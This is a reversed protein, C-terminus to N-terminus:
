FAYSIKATVKPYMILGTDPAGGDSIFYYGFTPQFLIAFNMNNLTYGPGVLLGNDFGSVPNDFEDSTIRGWHFFGGLEAHLPTKPYICLFQMGLALRNGYTEDTYNAEFNMKEYEFRAGLKLFETVAYEYIFSYSLNTMPDSWFEFDPDDFDIYISNEFPIGYGVSLGVSHKLGQSSASICLAIGFLFIFTLKKM